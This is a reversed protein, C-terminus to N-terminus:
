NGEELVQNLSEVVGLMNFATNENITFLPISESVEIRGNWETGGTTMGWSSLSALVNEMEISGETNVTTTIESTEGTESNVVETKEVRSESEIYGYLTHAMVADRPALPFTFSFSKTGVPMYEHFVPIVNVNDYNLLVKIFGATTINCTVFVTLMPIVGDAVEFEFTFLKERTTSLNIVRPNVYRITKYDVDSGGGSGGSGGSTGGRTTTSQKKTNGQKLGVGQLTCKGKFKFTSSTVLYSSGKYTIWDGVEIAPNGNFEIKFPIFQVLNLEDKIYGLAQERLADAVYNIFLPNEDLELTNDTSAESDLNYFKDKINMTVNTINVIYDGFEKSAITDPNIEWSAVGSYKKFVVKGDVNCTVFTCTLNAIWMLLDRCTKIGDYDNPDPMSISLTGNPFTSFEDSSTALELGCYSCVWNALDYPIGSSLETLPKDAKCLMSDATVALTKTKRVVGSPSIYFTGLKCWEVVDEALELGYELVVTSGVINDFSKVATGLSFDLYDIHVDGIRFNSSGVAKSVRTISGSVFDDTGLPTVVGDKTLTGKIQVYRSTKYIEDLFEQSVDVM